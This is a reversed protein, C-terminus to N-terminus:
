GKKFRSEKPGSKRDRKALFSNLKATIKEAETESSGRNELEIKRNNVLELVAFYKPGSRGATREETCFRKIQYFEYRTLKKNLLSRRSIEVARAKRDIMTTIVPSMLFSAFAATLVGIFALFLVYMVVAMVAGARGGGASSFMERPNFVAYLITWIFCGGFMVIGSVGILWYEFPADRLVLRDDNETIKM